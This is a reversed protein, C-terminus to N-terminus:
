LIGSLTEEPMRGVNCDEDFGSELVSSTGVAVGLLLEHLEDLGVAASTPDRFPRRSSM